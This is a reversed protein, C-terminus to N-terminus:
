APSRVGVVPQPPSREGDRLVAYRALPEDRQVHHVTDGVTHPVPGSRSALRSRGFETRTYESGKSATPGVTIPISIM